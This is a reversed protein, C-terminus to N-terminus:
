VISINIHSSTDDQLIAQVFTDICQVDKADIIKPIFPPETEVLSLSPELFPHHFDNCGIYILNDIRFPAFCMSNCLIFM